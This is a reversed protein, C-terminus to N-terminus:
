IANVQRGHQLLQWLQQRQEKSNGKAGRQVNRGDLCLRWLRKVVVALEAGNTLQKRKM